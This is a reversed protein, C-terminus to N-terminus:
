MASEHILYLSIITKTNTVNLVQDITLFSKGFGEASMKYGARVFERLYETPDGGKDKMMNISFETMILPVHMDLMVKKGGRMVGHESGEIDLKIAVVNKLMGAFDDLRLVDITGVKVYTPDSAPRGCYMGPDGLNTPDSYLFCQANEAGLAKDILTINLEPNACMTKRLTYLNVDMPEFAVVRFGKSALGAAYWGVQAGIDLVTLSGPGTINREKMYREIAEYFEKTENFEWEGTESLVASVIDLDSHVYMSFETDQFDAEIMEVRQELKPDKPALCFANQTQIASLFIHEAASNSILASKLNSYVGFFQGAAYVIVCIALVIVATKLSMSIVILKNAKFGYLNAAIIATILDCEPVIIVKQLFFEDSRYANDLM